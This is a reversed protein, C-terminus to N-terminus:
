SLEPTLGAPIGLREQAYEHVAPSLIDTWRPVLNSLYDRLEPELDPAHDLVDLENVISLDAFSRLEDATLEYSAGTFRDQVTQHEALGPWSAERACCGYLYVLRESDTGIVSRLVVRETQWDFLSSSFGDTGYAAHALAALLLDQSAGLSALRRAVRHLHVFLTGGAHELDDAGRVQLLGDLDEVTTM